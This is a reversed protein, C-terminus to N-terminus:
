GQHARGSRSSTIGFLRTTGAVPRRSLAFSSRIVLFQVRERDYCRWPEHQRRERLRAILCRAYNRRSVTLPTVATRSTIGCPREGSERKRRSAAIEEQHRGLLVGQQMLARRM